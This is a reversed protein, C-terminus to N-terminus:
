LWRRKCKLDYVPLSTCARTAHPGFCSWTDCMPLLTFDSNMVSRSCLGRLRTEIVRGAGWQRVTYVCVARRLGTPGLGVRERGCVRDTIVLM